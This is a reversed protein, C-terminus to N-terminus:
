SYPHTHLPEHRIYKGCRPCYDLQKESIGHLLDPRLLRFFPYMVLVAAVRFFMRVGGTPLAMLKFEHGLIRSAM